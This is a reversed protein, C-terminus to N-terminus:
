SVWFINEEFKVEFIKSALGENKKKIAWKIALLTIKTSHFTHPETELSDYIGLHEFEEHDGFPIFNCM